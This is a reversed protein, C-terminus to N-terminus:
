VARQAQGAQTVSALLESYQASSVIAQLSRLTISQQSRKRADLVRTPHVFFSWQALNLPDITLKDQHHLLAFVYVDAQRRSEDSVRNTSSDWAHTRATRFGVNSLRSQFWSQVHAASKVEIKIGEPTSLDFADWENRVGSVDIGLATAVIFEAFRGRTVNSVLDSVSWQWFSLLNVPLAKGGDHLLEIGTKRAVTIPELSDPM